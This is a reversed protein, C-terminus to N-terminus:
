VTESSMQTISLYCNTAHILVGWVRHCPLPPQPSPPRCLNECHLFKPYRNRSRPTVECIIIPRGSYQTVLLSHDAEHALWKDRPLFGLKDPSCSAPHAECCIYINQLAPVNKSKDYRWLESEVPRLGVCVRLVCTFNSISETPQRMLCTGKCTPQKCIVLLDTPRVIECDHLLM